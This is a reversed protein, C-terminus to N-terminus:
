QEPIFTHLALQYINQHRFYAWPNATKEERLQIRYYDGNDSFDVEQFIKTDDQWAAHSETRAKILLSGDNRNNFLGIVEDPVEILSRDNMIEHYFDHYQELDVLLQKQQNSDPDHYRFEIGDFIFRSTGGTKSNTDSYVLNEVLEFSLLTNKVQYRGSPGYYYAMLGSVLLASVVASCLVMILTTAQRKPSSDNDLSTM